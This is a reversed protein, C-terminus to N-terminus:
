SEDDVRKEEVSASVLGEDSPVLVLEYEKGGDFTDIFDQSDFTLPGYKKLLIILVAVADM